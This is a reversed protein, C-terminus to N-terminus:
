ESKNNNIIDITDIDGLYGKNKIFTIKRYTMLYYINNDVTIKEYIDKSCEIVITEGTEQEKVSFYFKDGNTNKTTINSLSSITHGFESFSIVMGTHIIIILVFPLFIWRIKKGKKRAKVLQFIVKIGFIAMLLTIIVLIVFLVTSMSDEFKTWAYTGLVWVMWFLIVSIVFTTMAAISFKMNRNCEKAQIINDM